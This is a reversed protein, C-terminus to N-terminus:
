YKTLIDAVIKECTLLDFHYGDRGFDVQEVEALNYFNNKPYHYKILKIINKKSRKSTTDKIMCEPLLYNIIKCQSNNNASNFNEVFNNLDNAPLEKKTQDFQVNVGDKYRRWFYSWMIIICKPNFNKKIYDVRLAMLDNSCGNESVNICTENLCQELIKPWTENIPQGLGETFSDGICWIKNEIDIPWENDRFGRSNYVYSINKNYNLFHTRNICEDISDMGNYDLRKFSRSKSLFLHM